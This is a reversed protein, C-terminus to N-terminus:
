PRQLQGALLQLGVNSEAIVVAQTGYPTIQGPATVNTLGGHLSPGGSVAQNDIIPVYFTNTGNGNTFVLTGSVPRIILARRPRAM